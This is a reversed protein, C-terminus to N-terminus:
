RIAAQLYRRMPDIWIQGVHYGSIQCGCPFPRFGSDPCPEGWSAGNTDPRRSERNLASLAWAGSLSTWDPGVLSALETAGAPSAMVTDAWDSVLYDAPMHPASVENELQELM